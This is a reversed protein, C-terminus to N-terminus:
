VRLAASLLYCYRGLSYRGPISGEMVKVSSARSNSFRRSPQLSVAYRSRLGTQVMPQPCLSASSCSPQDSPLVLGIRHEGLVEVAKHDTDLVAQHLNLGGVRSRSGRRDRGAARM